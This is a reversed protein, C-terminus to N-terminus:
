NPSAFFDWSYEIQRINYNMSTFLEFMKKENESHIEVIFVPRCKEICQKMGLIVQEEMGEADIKVVDIRPLSISDLVITQITTDNEKKDLQLVIAGFNTSKKTNTFKEEIHMNTEINSCGYQYVTTNFCQNNMLNFCLISAHSSLPEFAFGKGNNGVLKSMYLTHAGVNAGIDIFNMGSKCVNNLVNRIHPEWQGDNALDRCIYHDYPNVLMQYGDVTTIKKFESFENLNSIM